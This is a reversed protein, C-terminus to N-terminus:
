VGGGGSTPGYFPVWGVVGNLACKVFEKIELGTTQITINKSLDTAETGHLDIVPATDDDQEFIAVANGDGAKVGLRATPVSTGVGLRTHTYDWVLNADAGFSGSQNFQIYTDSGAIGGGGSPSVWSASTGNTQLVKGSNGTQSPLLATLAASATTQGTGGKNIPITTGAWSGTTITGLTTINTSGAWTSLATNEVNNLSLLSKTTSASLVEVNGTGASSRGLISATAITGLKSLGISNSAITVVGSSTITADGSMSVFSVAGATTTSLTLLGATTTTSSAAIVTATLDPFTMTRASTCATALTASATNGSNRLLMTSSNFTKAGTFTQTGALSALTGTVAPLTVTVASGSGNLTTRTASVGLGLSGTSGNTTLNGGGNSTDISGGAATSGASINITGSNYGTSCDMRLNGASKTPSSSATIYGTNGNPFPGYGFYFQGTAFVSGVVQMSGTGFPDEQTYLLPDGYSTTLMLGISSGDEGAPGSRVTLTTGGYATSTMVNRTSSDVTLLAYQPHDDNELSGLSEHSGDFCTAHPLSVCGNSWFALTQNGGSDKIRLIPVSPSAVTTSLTLAVIGDAGTVITNRSTQSPRKVISTLNIDSFFPM